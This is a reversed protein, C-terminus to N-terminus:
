HPEELPSSRASQQWAAEKVFQASQQAYGYREYVKGLAADDKAFATAMIIHSAQFDEAVLDIAEYAGAADGPAIRIFFQEVLWRDGANAYWPAALTFVLLHTDNLVVAFLAADEAPEEALQRLAAIARAPDVKGAWDKGGM